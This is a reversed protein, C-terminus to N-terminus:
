KWALVRGSLGITRPLRFWAEVTPFLDLVGVETEAFPRSAVFVGPVLAPDVSCHDGSWLRRNPIIVPEDLSGLTAQWSIRYGREFGVVLDASEEVRDGSYLDERVGVSRVIRKGDHELALLKTRIEELLARRKAPDVSGRPERGQLNLWIKGLGMSYARTRTWDIGPFLASGGISTEITRESGAESGVLYGEEALWRNLNVQHRFPAIGHDSFVVILDDRSAVERRIRGVLADIRRYSEKIPDGRRAIATPDHRLHAPDHDRMFLHQVRDPTSLVCFFMKWGSRGLARMVLEERERDIDLTQTLFTDEDIIEDQLPNTACAWGLTGFPRGDTALESGFTKPSVIPAVPSPRRPDFCSPEQYIITRAGAELVRFRALSSLVGLPGLPIPVDMWPTWGGKAVEISLGSDLEFILANRGRAPIVKLPVQPRSGDPRRPGEVKPGALVGGVEAMQVERCGTPTIRVGGAVPEERYVVATGPTGMVDPVGLGCLVCGNKLDPAPFSMPAFVNVTGIGARDLREFLTEGGRANRPVEVWAPLWAGLAGVFCAAGLLTGVFPAKRLVAGARLRRYAVFGSLALIVVMLVGVVWARLPLRVRDVLALEATIEGNKARRALFDFIGTEGPNRGTILSAWSVPSQAPNTPLLPALGGSRRLAALEPLTGDDTWRTTFEPDLGDVGILIVRGQGSTAAVLLALVCLFRSIM